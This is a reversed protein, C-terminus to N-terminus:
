LIHLFTVGGLIAYITTQAHCKAGADCHPAWQFWLDNIVEAILGKDCILSRVWMRPEFETAVTYMKGVVRQM